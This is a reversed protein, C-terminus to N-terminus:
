VLQSCLSDLMENHENIMNWALTKLAYLNDKTANDMRPSVSSLKTQFRYYRNLGNRPPLLQKLQYNVVNDVGDFVVNLMPQAWDALGWDKADKYWIPDTHEGTGLSVVLFDKYEQHTTIAEVYACMAPNNAYVGGDIFTFSSNEIEINNPQFYTPAASTARAADKMYVDRNELNPNKAKSSKFLWPTRKEIEYSTILIDTLAESLMTDGFYRELVAEIGSSTYREELLGNASIFKHWVSSSFIMSGEKEYLAALDHATYKPKKNKDPKVLGLTLIGGTSTGAILHFLEAIHKGTRKEIETLLLAPIIGRIGGGDISLVKIM